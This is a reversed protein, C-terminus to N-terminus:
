HLTVKLQITQLLIKELILEQLNRILESIKSKIPPYSRMFCSYNYSSYFYRITVLYEVAEMIVAREFIVM